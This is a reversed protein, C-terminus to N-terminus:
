LRGAAPHADYRRQAVADYRWDWGLHVHLGEANVQPFIRALQKNTMARTVMLGGSPTRASKAIASDLLEVMLAPDYSPYLAGTLADEELRAPDRLYRNPMFDGTYDRIAEVEDTSFPHQAPFESHYGGVRYPWNASAIEWAEMPDAKPARNFIETLQSRNSLSQNVNELTPQFMPPVLSQGELALPSGSIPWASDIGQSPPRSAALAPWPEVLPGSTGGDVDIPLAALEKRVAAIELESQILGRAAGPLSKVAKPLNKIANPYYNRAAKAKEGPAAKMAARAPGWAAGGILAGVDVTVGGAARAANDDWEDWHLTDKAVYKWADAVGPASDGGLGVLPAMAKAAEIPHQVAYILEEANEVIADGVGGGYQGVTSREVRDSFNSIAQQAQFGPSANVNPTPGLGLGAGTSDIRTATGTSATAQPAAPIAAGGSMAVTAAALSDKTSSSFASSSGGSFDGGGGVWETAAAPTSSSDGGFDGGGGVWEDGVAGGDSYGPVRRGDGKGLLEQWPLVTRRGFMEENLADNARWIKKGIWALLEFPMTPGPNIQDGFGVPNGNDDYAWAGGGVEGGESFGQVGRRKRRDDPSFVGDGPWFWWPALLGLDVDPGRPRYDPGPIIGPSFDGYIGPHWPPLVGPKGADGGAGPKWPPPEGDVNLGTVHGGSAFSAHSSFMSDSAGRAGRGYRVEGVSGGASEVNVGNPLTMATHGGESTNVNEGGWGVKFAGSLGPRFGM